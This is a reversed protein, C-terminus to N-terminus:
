EPLEMTNSGGTATLAREWLELWEPGLSPAGHVAVEASLWGIAQAAHERSVAGRNAAAEAGLERIQELLVAQNAHTSPWVTANAAVWPMLKDAVRRGIVTM